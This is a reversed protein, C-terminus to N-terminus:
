DPSGLFLLILYGIYLALILAGDVAKLRKRFFVLCALFLTFLIMAPADYILMKRSFDVEKVFSAIPIVFLLNFINSGIVNGLILEGQNKRAAVIATALEPLSTGVAVISLAIVRESIGWMQAITKSGVILFYAGFYLALCSFIAALPFILWIHNWRKIEQSYVFSHRKLYQLYTYVILFLLLLAGSLKHIPGLFMLAFVGLSCFILLGLQKKVAETLCTTMFLSIGLILGINAINSGLVNGLALDSSEQIQALLSTVAEPLSTAFAMVTLGSLFTSIRFRYAIQMSLRVLLEAGLYLLFIGGVILGYMSDSKTLSFQNQLVIDFSSNCYSVM